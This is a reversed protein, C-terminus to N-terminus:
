VKKASLEKSDTSGRIFWLLEELIGRFLTQSYFYSSLIDYMDVFSGLILLQLRSPYVTDTFTAVPPAMQTIIDRNPIVQKTTLLPFGGNRLNFRMQPGFISWTGTGTRDQRLVGALVRRVLNLHGAEDYITETDYPFPGENEKDSARRTGSM